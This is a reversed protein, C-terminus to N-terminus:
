VIRWLPFVSVVSELGVDFLNSLGGYSIRESEGEYNVAFVAFINYTIDFAFPCM